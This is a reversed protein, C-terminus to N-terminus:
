CVQVCVFWFMSTVTLAAEASWGGHAVFGLAFEDLEDRQCQCLHITHEALAKKKTDCARM